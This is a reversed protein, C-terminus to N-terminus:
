IRRRVAFAVVLLTLLGAAVAFALRVFLTQRAAAEVSADLAATSAPGDAQVVVLQSAGAVHALTSGPAILATAAATLLAQAGAPTHWRAFLTVRNGTHSASLASAVQSATVTNPTAPGFHAALPGRLSSYQNAIEGDLAQSQLAGGSVLTAAVASEAQHAVYADFASAGGALPVAIRLSQSAVYVHRAGAPPGAYQYLAGGAILLAVVLPFLWM